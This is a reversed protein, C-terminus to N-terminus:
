RGQHKDIGAVFRKPASFDGMWAKPDGFFQTTVRGTTADRRQVSRLQGPASTPASAAVQADAFIQGEAIDFAAKPLVNLDVGKWQKSHQQMQKAMRKRYGLVTEGRLPRPAREGFLGMVSDAKVQADVMAEEEEPERDAPLKGELADMRAKLAATEDAKMRDNKEAEAAEAARKIREEETEGGGEGETAAAVPTEKPAEKGRAELADMRGCLSDMMSLLKDMKDGGADAQAPPAAVATPDADAKAKDQEAAAAAAKEEDTMDSDGYIVSEVGSPSGGKDWVGRECIALHDLLSPKGEILLTRGDDLEVKENVSPDRFVVAPSTSLREEEILDRIGDDHIKAVAWVEDGRVYPLFISGVVRSAYEESNLKSGPPHDMVVPLGNCRQLFEETLYQEPPRYVFEDLAKRYATGTGTVRLNVLSISEYRQPSTLKGSAVAKAVGLEDMGLREIAVAVGPHLNM